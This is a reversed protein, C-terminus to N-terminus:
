KNVYPLNANNSYVARVFGTLDTKDIVLVYPWNIGIEIRGM